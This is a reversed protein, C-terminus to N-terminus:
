FLGLYKGAVGFVLLLFMLIAPNVNKKIAKYCVFTLLLPLLNPFISDLVSQLALESGQITFVKELKFSTMTCAMAGVTMLGVIGAGKTIKGMIGSESATKMFSGGLEYGLFVGYYRILHAPVNFILLHLIAGLISGSQAIGIGVGLSIVRLSGWFLSDGIGAFPGMLAIKIASISSTDFEKTESAEKEMSAALGTIIGGMTPTTNFLENHRKLAATREEETKYFRNIAPMMAYMFGLAQMTEYNYTSSLTMTRWFMSRCMKKDERSLTSKRTM